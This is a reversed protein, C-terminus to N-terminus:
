RSRSGDPHTSTETCQTLPRHVPGLQDWLPAPGGPRLVSLGDRTEFVAVSVEDISRIGHHRLTSELDARTLGARRLEAEQVEGNIVLVTTPHDVLRRVATLRRARVVAWHGTFLGLIALAGTAVSNGGTATRGTIAGVAIVAALDFPALEAVTRRKGVRFALVVALYLGCAVLFAGVLPPLADSWWITPKLGAGWRRGPPAASGWINARSRSAPPWPDPRDAVCGLAAGRSARHLRPRTRTATVPLVPRRLDFCTLLM